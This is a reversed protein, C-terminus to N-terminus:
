RRPLSIPLRVAPDGLLVYGSLDNRTMWLHARHFAEPPGATGDARAAEDEQSKDTLEANVSAIFRTLANLSVGARRQKVLERLVGVFRSAHNHGTAEQFAYTWALDVHGVIALPGHPNALAAQPLAAVFPRQDVPASARIAALNPAGQNDELLRQLWPAYASRAPTGASFCAFSFWFGDPLFPHQSVVDAALEEGQDLSMVGQRRRQEAASAWGNRPPGLGHSLTLLVGPVREAASALLQDVSWSDPTGLDLVQSAPFDGRQLGKECLKMSPQILAQYGIDTAPTGDHVTFFLARAREASPSTSEARLVKAVYAEFGADDPFTLRGVFRDVALHQQFEFSIEDADGLLLLYRPQDQLPMAQLKRRWAIIDPGSMNPAVRFVELRSPELGQQEARRRALPAVLALLRDGREGTPAVLAWRQAELDNPDGGPDYLHTPTYPPSPVPSPHQLEGLVSDMEPGQSLVPRHDDARALLLHLHL